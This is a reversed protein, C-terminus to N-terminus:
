GLISAMAEGLMVPEIEEVSQALRIKAMKYRKSKGVKKIGM